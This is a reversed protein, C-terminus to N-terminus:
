RREYREIDGLWGQNGRRSRHDVAQVMGSRATSLVTFNSAIKGRVHTEIELAVAEGVTLRGLARTSCFVLYGVGGVDIVVWDDGLGDVVGKLKAILPGGGDADLTSPNGSLARSLDRRCLADAADPTSPAAGPLLTGVMM